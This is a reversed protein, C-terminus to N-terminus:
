YCCRTRFKVVFARRTAVTPVSRSGRANSSFSGDGLVIIVQCGGTGREPEGRDILAIAKALASYTAMWGEFAEQRWVPRLMEEMIAHRTRARVAMYHSYTDYDSSSSTVESLLDTEIKIRKMRENSSRTRSDDGKANRWRARPLEWVKESGDPRVEVGYFINRRGLDFFALRIHGKERVILELTSIRKCASDIGKM